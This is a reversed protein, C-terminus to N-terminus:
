KVFIRRAAVWAELDDQPIRIEGGSMRWVGPFEHLHERLYKVSCDLRAAASSLSFHRSEVAPPAFVAGAQQLVKIAEPVSM